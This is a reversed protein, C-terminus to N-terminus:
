LRNILASAATYEREARGISDGRVDRDNLCAINGLWPRAFAVRLNYNRQTLRSAGPNEKTEGPHSRVCALAVGNDVRLPRFQREERRPVSETALSPFMVPSIRM